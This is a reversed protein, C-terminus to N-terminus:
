VIQRTQAIPYKGSQMDRLKCVLPRLENYSGIDQATQRDVAIAGVVRGLDGQTEGFPNVVVRTM